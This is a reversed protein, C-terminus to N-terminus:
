SIGHIQKMIPIAEELSIKREDADYIKTFDLTPFRPKTPDSRDFFIREQNLTLCVGDFNMRDQLIVNGMDARTATYADAGVGCFFNFGHDLLVQHVPGTKIYDGYPYVYISTPGILPEVENQWKDADDEMDAVTYNAMHGHKYSHSSFYWGTDKLAQIVPKVAEIESNRNPSERQTRYGLIGDFGTLCIMGKAGNFSFDPHEAVFNDIIPVFENDDSVVESGDKMKTYSVVKGQSNLILKDVMGNGMKDSYYCVDDFSLVVPKKGKPFMFSKMRYGTDTKEYVDNLNVMVYNGEYLLELFRKYETATVCDQFYTSKVLATKDTQVYALEPFAILSHTFIHEVTGKYEVLDGSALTPTPTPAPTETPPVATNAVFETSSPTPTAMLVDGGDNDKNKMIYGVVFAVIVVILFISVIMWVKGNNKSQKEKM